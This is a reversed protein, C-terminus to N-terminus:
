IVTLLTRNDAFIDEETTFNRDRCKSSRLFSVPTYYCDEVAFNTFVIFEYWLFFTQEM